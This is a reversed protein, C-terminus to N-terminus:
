LLSTFTTCHQSTDGHIRVSIRNLNVRVDTRILDDSPTSEHITAAEFAITHGDKYSLMWDNFDVEAPSGTTVGVVLSGNWNVDDQRQLSM